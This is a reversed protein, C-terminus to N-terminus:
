NFFPVSNLKFYDNTIFSLWIRVSCLCVGQRDFDLVEVIDSLCVDTTEEFLDFDTFTLKIYANKNVTIRWSCKQNFDYPLPYM